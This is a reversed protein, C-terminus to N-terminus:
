VVDINGSIRAHEKKRRVAFKGRKIAARWLEPERALLRSLEAETLYLTTKTMRLEILRGAPKGAQYQEREEM